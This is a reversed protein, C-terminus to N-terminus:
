SRGLSPRAAKGAHWWLGNFRRGRIASSDAPPGQPASGACLGCPTAARAAGLHLADGRVDALCGRRGAASQGREGPHVPQEGTAPLPGGPVGRVEARRVWPHRACMARAPGGYPHWVRERCSSPALVPAEFEGPGAEAAADVQHPCVGRLPLALVVVAATNGPAPRARPCDPCRAPERAGPSSRPSRIPQDARGHPHCLRGPSFRSSM